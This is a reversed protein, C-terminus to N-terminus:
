RGDSPLRWHHDWFGAARVGGDGDQLVRGDFILFDPIGVGSTFPASVAHLRTGVPGSSGVVGVLHEADGRRPLVALVALDDGTHLNPGLRVGGREVRLPADPGILQDWAANTDANGILILNGDHGRQLFEADTLQLARGNARYAWEGALARARAALERDEEDDGATGLVLAFGQEFARKFP